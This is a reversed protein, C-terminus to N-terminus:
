EVIQVEIDESIQEKLAREIGLQVTFSSLPCGVCAGKLKIFVKKNEINVIEIDGGDSLIFEHVEILAREIQDKTIQGM